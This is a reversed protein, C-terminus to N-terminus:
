AMKSSCYRRVQLASSGGLHNPSFTLRVMGPRFQDGHRAVEFGGSPSFFFLFSVGLGEGVGLGVYIRLRIM